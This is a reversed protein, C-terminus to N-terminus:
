KVFEVNSLGKFDNDGTLLILKLRRATSYNICDAYSLARKKKLMESRFIGASKIINEDLGIVNLYNTVSSYIMDATEIDENHYVHHYLEVLTIETVYSDKSKQFREFYKRYNDNNWVFWEMLAYTDVVFGL